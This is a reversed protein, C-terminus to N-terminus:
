HQNCCSSESCHRNSRPDCPTAHGRASADRSGRNTASSPVPPSEAPARRDACPLTPRDSPNPLIRNHSSAPNGTPCEGREAPPPGCSETRVDDPRAPKAPLAQRIGRWAAGARPSVLRYRVRRPPAAAVGQSSRERARRGACHRGPSHRPPGGGRPWPRCGASINRVHHARPPPLATAVGNRCDPCAACAQRM